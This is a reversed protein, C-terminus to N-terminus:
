TTQAGAFFSGFLGPDVNGGSVIAVTKQPQARLSLAGAVSVAGSPEAVIKGEIALVRIADVIAAESVKIIDDVYDRILPWNRQGLKQVRLGDAITLAMQEYPLEVLQGAQFSEYADAALEPEVGVVRVKPRLAKLTAAVGGMLGGGSIPALVVEVDPWAALIELAITGTAEVIPWADYPEVLTVGREDAIRKAVSAREASSPGVLVISAGLGQTRAIKTAPANEPMVITANVRLERAAYAVAQAHNGSSHAVVGARREDDGLSLMTNFAGRIKFSGTPQLGEAKLGLGNFTRLIPTKTVYPALRIAANEVGEISFSVSETQGPNV